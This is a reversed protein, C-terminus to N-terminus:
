PVLAESPTSPVDAPGPQPRRLERVSRTRLWLLASVLGIGSMAFLTEHLGLAASIPGAVALGVPMIGASVTFDYSSVRAVAAPPVQEQVSLDWFTFFLAVGVGGVAELAAIGATGLPMGIFAAQLSAGVLGCAALLIARRVRLRLALANGAVTGLGFATSIIAWSSAGSLEREAIV